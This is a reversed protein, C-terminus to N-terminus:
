SAAKVPQYPNTILIGHPDVAVDTVHRQRGTYPNYLLTGREQYLAEREEAIALAVLRELQEVVKQHPLGLHLTMGSGRMLRPLDASM